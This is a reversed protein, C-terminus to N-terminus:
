TNNKPRVREHARAVRSLTSPSRRISLDPSGRGYSLHISCRGELGLTAPELGAPRALYRGLPKAGRVGRCARERAAEDARETRTPESARSARKRGPQECRGARLWLGVRAHNEIVFKPMSRQRAASPSQAECQERISLVVGVQRLACDQASPVPARVPPPLNLSPHLDHGRERL